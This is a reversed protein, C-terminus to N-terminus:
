TPNTIKLCAGINIDSNCTLTSFTSDDVIDICYNQNWKCYTNLTHLSLCTTINM